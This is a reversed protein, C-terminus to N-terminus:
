RRVIELDDAAVEDATLETLDLLGADQRRIRRAADAGSADTGSCKRRDVTIASRHRGPLPRQHQM